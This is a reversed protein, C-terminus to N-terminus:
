NNQDHTKEPLGTIIMVSYMSFPDSSVNRLTPRSSSFSKLPSLPQDYLAYYPTFFSVSPPLQLCPLWWFTFSIHSSCIPCYDFSCSGAGLCIIWSHNHLAVGWQFALSLSCNGCLCKIKHFVFHMKFDTQLQPGDCSAFLILNYRGTSNNNWKLLKDITSTLLFFLVTHSTETFVPM